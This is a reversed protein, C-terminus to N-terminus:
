LRRQRQYQELDGLFDRGSGYRQDPEFATAKGIIRDM